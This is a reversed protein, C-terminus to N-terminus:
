SYDPLTKEGVGSAAALSTHFEVVAVKKNQFLLVAALALL